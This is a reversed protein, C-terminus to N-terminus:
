DTQKKIAAKPKGIVARKGKDLDIQKERSLGKLCIKNNRIENQRGGGGGCTEREM